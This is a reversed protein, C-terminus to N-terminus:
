TKNERKFINIGVIFAAVYIISIASGMIFAKPRYVFKVNNNGQSLYVGRMVDNTRLIEQKKGNVYVSWGPYYLDNLILLGDTSMACRISVSNAQYEDITVVDNKENTTDSM